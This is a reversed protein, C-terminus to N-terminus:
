HSSTAQRWASVEDKVERSSGVHEHEYTFRLRCNDMGCDFGRPEEGDDRGDADGPQAKSSGAAQRKPQRREASLVGCMTLWPLLTTEWLMQAGDSSSLASEEIAVADVREGDRFAAACPLRRLRLQRVAEDDATSLWVVYFKTGVFRRAVVSMEHQLSAHREGNLGLFLVVKPVDREERVQRTFVDVSVSQTIGFGSAADQAAQQMQREMEKRRAALLEAMGFDDDDDSDFDSDEEEEEEVELSAVSRVLASTSLTGSVVSPGAAAAPPEFLQQRFRVGGSTPDHATLAAKLKMAKQYDHRDRECCSSLTPDNALFEEDLEDGHAHAHHHEHECGSM